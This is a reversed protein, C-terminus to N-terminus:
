GIRRQAGFHPPRINGSHTASHAPIGLRDFESAAKVHGAESKSGKAKQHYLTFIVRESCSHRKLVFTRGSLIHRFSSGDPVGVQHFPM